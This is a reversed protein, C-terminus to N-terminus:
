PAPLVQDLYEALQRASLYGPHRVRIVGERDLILTTPLGPARYERYVRATEDLLIPYTMEVDELFSEIAHASEEVDIGLIVLGDERYSRYAAELDPIEAQCPPCWTAWFNLLVVQGRYDSLFVRTGDLSELTFDLAIKGRDIGELSEPEEGSCGLLGLSLVLLLAVASQRWPISVGVERSM